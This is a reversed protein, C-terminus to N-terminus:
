KLGVKFFFFFDKSKANSVKQFVFNTEFSESIDLEDFFPLKKQSLYRNEATDVTRGGNKKLKGHLCM